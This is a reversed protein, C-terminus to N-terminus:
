AATSEKVVSATVAVGLVDVQPLTSGDKWAVIM